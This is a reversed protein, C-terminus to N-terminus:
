RDGFDELIEFDDDCNDNECWEHVFKNDQLKIIDGPIIWVSCNICRSRFHAVRANKSIPPRVIKTM